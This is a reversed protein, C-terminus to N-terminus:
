LLVNLRWAKIDSFLSTYKEIKLTKLKNNSKEYKKPKKIEYFSKQLIDIYHIM